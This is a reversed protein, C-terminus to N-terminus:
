QLIPVIQNKKRWYCRMISMIIKFVMRKQSTKHERLVKVPSHEERADILERYPIVFSGQM